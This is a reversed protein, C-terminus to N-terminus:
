YRATSRHRRGRRPPHEWWSLHLVHPADNPVDWANFSASRSEDSPIGSLRFTHAPDDSGAVRLQVNHATGNGHNTVTVNVQEVHVPENDYGTYIRPEEWGSQVELRPKPVGRHSQVIAFVSAIPAALAIGSTLYDSPKLSQLFDTPSM